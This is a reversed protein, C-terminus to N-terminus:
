VNTKDGTRAQPEQKKVELNGIGSCSWPPIIQYFCGHVAGAVLPGIWYIWLREGNSGSYGFDSSPGTVGSSHGSGIWVALCRDPNIGAGGYGPVAFSSTFGVLAVALGVLIPAVAPGFTSAQRPDLGVGFALFLVILSATFEATFMQRSEVLNPDFFCGGAKWDTSNLTARVLLGALVAGAAQFGVYLVMRPLTTMRCFFTAITITANLHGGTVVGFSFVFLSITIVNTVAGVLPGLFNATGFVGSPGSPVPLPQVNLSPSSSLVITIYSLMMAGVGEMFAQKWLSPQKFGDFSLLTKLSMFPAADPNRKLLSATDPDTPDLVFEQNGGLRGAYPIPNSKLKIYEEIRRDIDIECQSQSMNCETQKPSTTTEIATYDQGAM